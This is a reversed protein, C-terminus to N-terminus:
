SKPRRSRQKASISKIVIRAPKTPAFPTGEARLARDILNALAPAAFDEPGNILVHRVVSGDGKLIGEPDSLGAGHLFFFNIWRPYVAISFIGDSTKETPSFGIALANYNDYVLEVAGPLIERLRALIAHARAEIEPTFKALFAALEQEPTM